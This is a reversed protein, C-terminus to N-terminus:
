RAEITIDDIYIPGKYEGYPAWFVLVLRRRGTVRKSDPGRSWRLTRWQGPELPQIASHGLWEEDEILEFKCWVQEKADAPLYLHATITGYFDTVPRENIIRNDGWAWPGLSCGLELSHMGEYAYETSNSLSMGSHLKWGQQTSDEFGFLVPGGSALPLVAQLVGSVAWLLTLVLAVILVIVVLWRPFAVPQRLMNVLGRGIPQGKLQSKLSRVSRCIVIGGSVIGVLAAVVQVWQLLNM